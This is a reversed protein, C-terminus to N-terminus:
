AAVQALPAEVPYSSPGIAYTQTLAHVFAPDALPDSPTAVTVGRKRLDALLIESVREPCLDDQHDLATKMDQMDTFVEANWHLLLRTQQQPYRIIPKGDTEVVWGTPDTDDARITSTWGLGAPQRLAEPGFSEGRHFMAENQVVVGKNWMPAPLRRPAALPGDPWYTFGGGPGDKYFWTIVQAKKVAWRNFLGSKGMVGLLWTPTNAGDMGRFSPSDLHGPDRDYAPGALNFLMMTPRAYKANWYSKAYSLFKPNYFAEEVEDYYCISNQALYGRFTPGVFSELTLKTGPPPPAGSTTAILEEVSKFHQAIILRWPGHRRIASVVSAYQADTYVNNLLQPPAIPRLNDSLSQLSM